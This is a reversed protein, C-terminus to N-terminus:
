NWRRSERVRWGREAKMCREVRRALEGQAAEDSAIEAVTRLYASQKTREREKPDSLLSHRKEWRQWLFELETNGTPLYTGSRASYVGIQMVGACSAASAQLYELRHRRRRCPASLAMAEPSNPADAARHARWALARSVRDAWVPDAHAHLSERQAAWHRADAQARAAHRALRRTAADYSSCMVSPTPTFCAEAVAQSRPVLFASVEACLTAAAWRHTADTYGLENLLGPSASCPMTLLCFFALMFRSPRGTLTRASTREHTRTHKDSQLPEDIKM